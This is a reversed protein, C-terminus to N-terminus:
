PIQWKSVFDCDRYQANIKINTVKVKDLVWQELAEYKKNELAANQIMDYDEVINAKHEAVKEQLYVLRYAMIGDDNVFPVCDSYEGPILKNITLFTADDM